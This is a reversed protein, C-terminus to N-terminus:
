QYMSLHIIMMVMMMLCMGISVNEDLYMQSSQQIEELDMDEEDGDHYVVVHCLKDSDYVDTTVTGFLTKGDFAKPAVRAGVKM